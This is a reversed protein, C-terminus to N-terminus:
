YGLVHMIDTLVEDQSKSADVGLLHGASELGEYGERIRQHYEAPKSEFRDAGKGSKKMRELRISDPCDLYFMSVRSFEVVYPRIAEQAADFIKEPIGEGM